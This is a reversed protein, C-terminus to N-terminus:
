YYRGMKILRDAVVIDDDTVGLRLLAKVRKMQEKTMSWHRALLEEKTYKCSM